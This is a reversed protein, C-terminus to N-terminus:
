KTSFSPEFPSNHYMANYYGITILVKKKIKSSWKQLKQDFNFFAPIQKNATSSACQMESHPCSKLNIKCGKWKGRM